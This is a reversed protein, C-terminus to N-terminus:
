KYTGAHRDEGGEHTRRWLTVLLVPLWESAISVVASKLLGQHLNYWIAKMGTLDHNPHCKFAAHKVPCVYGELEKRSCLEKQSIYGKYIVVKVWVIALVVNIWRRAITDM